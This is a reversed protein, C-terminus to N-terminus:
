AATADPRTQGAGRYGSYDQPDFRLAGGTLRDLMAAHNPPIREGWKSVAARKIGLQRAVEAGNGEFHKLVDSKLM